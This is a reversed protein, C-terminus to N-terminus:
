YFGVEVLSRDYRFGEDDVAACRLTLTETTTLIAVVLSEFASRVGTPPYYTWCVYGSKKTHTYAKRQLSQRDTQRHTGTQIDSESCFLFASADFHWSAGGAILSDRACFRHSVVLVTSTTFDQHVMFAATVARAAAPLLDAPKFPRWCKGVMLLLYISLFPSSGSYACRWVYVRVYLRCLGAFVFGDCVVSLLYCQSTWCSFFSGLTTTPFSHVSIRSYDM